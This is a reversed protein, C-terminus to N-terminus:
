VEWNYVKAKNTDNLLKIYQDFTLRPEYDSLIERAKKSNYELLDIVTDTFYKIPLEYALYEDDTRFDSGHIRGAFGSVGIQVTPLLYSLDGMDGSAFSHCDKLIKDEDIYKLINDKVVSTLKDDQVLPLYGGTNIIEVGAGIALAGGRLARDVKADVDKIADLTRARIYMDIVVRDPVSNVGAGGETIVYHVRIADEEKFTERLYAIANLAVNAANLANIGDCPNFGAHTSIGKFIIKKGLFGNLSSNVESLHGYSPPMSHCSLVLDIDDFAKLKIMEQKGSMYTLKNEKVLKERYNFDCYEEAPTAIFSIKGELEDLVKSEKLAIFTGLMVGVQAYHGCSHACNDKKGLYTHDTSPVSDLECLLAIHPGEKKSDITAKIGTLAIDSKYDIEYKDLIKCILKNTEFEKFGLEPNKFIEESLNIMEKKILDITYLIKNEM